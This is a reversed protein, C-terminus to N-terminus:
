SPFKIKQNSSKEELLFMDQMRIAQDIHEQYSCEKRNFVIPIGSPHYIFPKSTIVQQKMRIYRGEFTKGITYFKDDIIISEGSDNHLLEMEKNKSDFSYFFDFKRGSLYQIPNLLLPVKQHLYINKEEETFGVTNLLQMICNLKDSIALHIDLNTKINRYSSKIIEDREEEKTVYPNFIEYIGISDNTSRIEVKNLRNFHYLFDFSFVKGEMFLSVLRPCAYPLWELCQHYHNEVILANPNGITLSKLEPFHCFFFLNALTSDDLKDIHIKHSNIVSNTIHNIKCNQLKLDQQCYRFVNMSSIECDSFDLKSKLHSFDCDKEIRCKSFHVISLEKFFRSLIKVMQRDIM